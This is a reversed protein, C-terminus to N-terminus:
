RKMEKYHALQETSIPVFRVQDGSQLLTPPFSNPLFLDLPTRGIIQWGGPTEM